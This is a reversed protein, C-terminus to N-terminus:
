RIIRHLGEKLLLENFNILFALRLDMFKLYTLVQATSVPHLTQVSKIECLVREEVLM